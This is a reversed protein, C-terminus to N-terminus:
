QYFSRAIAGARMPNAWDPYLTRFEEAIAPATEDASRGQSKLEQTRRQIAALMERQQTILASGGFRGHSPVVVAPGLAELEGLVDLWATASSQQGFSPFTRNMVIDGAFLVRDPEVFVATDGRTHTPGLSLLRVRVGGGLDVVHEKDFLVDPRRLTAGQLLEGMIPRMSAFRDMMGPGLEDLDQRQVRSAIFPTSAPFAFAGGAHEPHFHTAVLYQEATQSVKAVERLIAQANRAGLGTDVVLTGRSGVVIGVNPVIPVGNDPILYAHASLKVTANEQVIPPPPAPQTVQQAAAMAAAGPGCAVFTLM